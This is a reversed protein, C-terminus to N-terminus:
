AYVCLQTHTYAQQITFYISYNYQKAKMHRIFDCLFPPGAMNLPKNM